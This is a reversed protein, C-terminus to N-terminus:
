CPKDNTTQTLLQNIMTTKKSTLNDKITQLYARETM